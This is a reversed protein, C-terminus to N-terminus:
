VLNQVPLDVSSAISQGNVFIISVHSSLLGIDDMNRSKNLFSLLISNCPM